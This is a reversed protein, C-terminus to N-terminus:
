SEDSTDKRSKRKQKSTSTAPKTSSEVPPHKPPDHPALRGAYTHPQDLLTYRPPPFRRMLEGALMGSGYVFGILTVIVGLGPTLILVVLVGAGVLAYQFVNQTVRGMLLRGIFFAFAPLSLFIMLLWGALITWGLGAGILSSLLLMPIFFGAALAVVGWLVTWGPQERGYTSLSYFFRPLLLVLLLTAVLINLAFFLAVGALLGATNFPRRGDTAQEYKVTGVTATEARNYESASRYALNGTVVAGPGLYLNGVDARVNRGITGTIDASGASVAADRRVTGELYVENGAAHVDTAQAAKKLTFRESVSSVNGGVVADVAVESGALRVDGEITGRIDLRQGACLVDGRITGTIVVSEGACFLDGNVTGRIELKSGAMFLTSDVTQGSDVTTNNGGARFEIARAAPALAAGLLATLTVALITIPIIRARAFKM